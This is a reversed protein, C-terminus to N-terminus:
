EKPRPKAAAQKSAIEKKDKLQQTAIERKTAADQRAMEVDTQHQRESMSREHEQQQWAAEQDAQQQQMAMMTEITTKTTEAIIKKLNAEEIQMQMLSQQQAAQAQVHGQLRTNEAEAMTKAADAQGQLQTAQAQAMNVAQASQDEQQERTADVITKFATAKDKETKAAINQHTLARDEQEKQALVKQQEAAAAEAEEKVKRLKEIVDSPIPSFDLLTLTVDPTLMDKFVPLVQSIIQWTAEKQNPSTPADAVIVDYDGATEERMLPISKPTGDDGKIRILRGDSLHTQIFHLRIRGVNKRFRRLSNFISALVTMAAQKRQAELIGPQNADRLGLLELNVGTVDRISAIAFELLKLYVSPDGTGPKPMIRGHQVAGEAAWTIENPQAYSDEAQREDDFANKEAIIGGKATTNAIHLANSLMKNAWMQPDRMVRVFGFFGGNKRDREGTICNFSFETPCPTPGQDLLKGGLFAQKYVKRMLKAAQFRIGAEKARAAFTKYEEVTLEEPEPEPQGMQPATMDPELAVMYYAEKDWWQCHVLTVDNKDAAVPDDLDDHSHNKDEVPRPDKSEGPATVGAWTADLDEDAVKPFMARAESISIKRIRTVRRADSYNKKQSKSDPFIERPDVEIEVYKGEPEEDYDMRSETWGEGCILAAEFAESQEDEADCSDSMWESAASLLENLQTDEVGRPLFRTDLRGNIESGAISKITTLVRNFCVPVRGNDEMFDSDKKTWQENAIFGFDESAKKAWKDRNNIDTKVWSKVRRFLAIEDLQETRADSEDRETDISRHEDAM